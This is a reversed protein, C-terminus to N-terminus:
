KIREAYDFFNSGDKNLKHQHAEKDIRWAEAFHIDGANAVHAGHNVILDIKQDPTMKTVLQKGIKAYASYEGDEASKIRSAAVHKSALKHLWTPGTKGKSGVMQGINDEDPQIDNSLAHGHIKFMYGYKSDRESDHKNGAIDGGLAYMQAYGIHPTVYSRGQVPALAGKLKESQAKIIGEDAIKEGIDKKVWKGDVKEQRPSYGHYFTKNRVDETPVAMELLIDKITKTM